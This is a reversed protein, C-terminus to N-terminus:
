TTRKWIRVTYNIPRNENARDRSNSIGYTTTQREGWGSSAKAIWSGSRWYETVDTDHRHDRVADLQKGGEFPNANTGEARFFCGAYDSSINQWTMTNGWLQQPTPQNPFQTYIFGIPIASNLVDKKAQTIANQAETKAQAVANRAETKAKAIETNLKQELANELRPHWLAHAYPTKTLSITKSAAIYSGVLVKYTPAQPATTTFTTSTTRNHTDGLADTIPDSTTSITYISLDQDKTPLPSITLPSDVYFINKTTTNNHTHQAIFAGPSITISASNVTPVLGHLIGTSFMAATHKEHQAQNHHLDNLDSADLRTHPYFTKHKM